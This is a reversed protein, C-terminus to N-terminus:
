AHGAPVGLRTLMVSWVAALFGRERQAPDHPEVAVDGPAPEDPGGTRVLVMVRGLDSRDDHAIWGDGGEEFLHPLEQSERLAEDMFGLEALLRRM